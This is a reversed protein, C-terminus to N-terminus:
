TSASNDTSTSILSLPHPPQLHISSVEHTGYASRPHYPNPIPENCPVNHLRPESPDPGYGTSQCPNVNHLYGTSHHPGPVVSSPGNVHQSHSNGIDNPGGEAPDGYGYEDLESPNPPPEEYLKKYYQTSHPTHPTAHDVPYGSSSAPGSPQPHSEPPLVEQYPM